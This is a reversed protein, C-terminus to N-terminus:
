SINPKKVYLPAVQKTEQLVIKWFVSDYDPMSELHIKRSIREIETDGSVSQVDSWFSLDSNKVIEVKGNKSYKVFLDRKSSSKLIPYVEYLDFFSIATLHLYPYIFALTNVILSISRIGTFSGPGVVTVINELDAYSVRQDKLFRDVIPILKTSENGVVHFVDRAICQREKNYLGIYGRSSVADFFLYM